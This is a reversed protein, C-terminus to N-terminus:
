NPISNNESTYKITKIGGTALFLTGFRKRKLLRNVCGYYKKKESITTGYNGVQDIILKENFGRAGHKCGRQEESLLDAEIYIRIKEKIFSTLKEYITNLYTIPRYKSPYANNETNPKLYTYIKTVIHTCSNYKEM